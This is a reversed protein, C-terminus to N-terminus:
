MKAKAISGKGGLKVGADPAAFSPLRRVFEDWRPQTVIPASACDEAGSWQLWRELHPIATTIAADELAFQAPADMGAHTAFWVSGRKMIGAEYVDLVAQELGAEKAAEYFFRQGIAEVLVKCRPLLSRNFTDSRHQSNMKQALVERCEEFIGTEYRAALCDPYMPPPLKYRGILLETALRICLVLTDGEAITAGRMELQVVQINIQNHGFLGQAGLRDSLQTCSEQTHIMMVTKAAAAIGARVEADVTFDTFAKLTTSGDIFAQMVFAQALAHVIPIQQTRFYIIPVNEGTHPSLVRRRLSYRGAVYASIFVSPIAFAGVALGGVSVRSIAAQFAAKPNKPKSVSGLCAWPALKIHDFWTICHRILGTGAREPIIRSRIGPLLNTATSVQVVFPRVGHDEGNVFLKAFVVAYRPLSINPLPSTPAMFKAAGDNPTTLIFSGDDLMEARTEINIADLGHAQETLMFLGSIEFDLLKQLILRLEPRKDAWPAITGAALNYQIALILASAMDITGINTTHLAWFKPSLSIVDHATLKYLRGIAQARLYSTDIRQDLPLNDLQLSFLESKALQTTLATFPRRDM